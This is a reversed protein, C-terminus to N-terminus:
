LFVPLFIPSQFQLYHYDKAFQHLDYPGSKKQYCREAYCFDVWGTGDNYAYNFSVTESPYSELFVYYSSVLQIVHNLNFFNRLVSRTPDNAIASIDGVYKHYIKQTDASSINPHKLARFAAAAESATESHWITSLFNDLNNSFRSDNNELWAWMGQYQHDAALDFYTGNDTIYAQKRQNFGTLRNYNAYLFNLYPSSAQAMKVTYEGAVDSTNPWYFILALQEIVGTQAAIGTSALWFLALMLISACMKKNLFM